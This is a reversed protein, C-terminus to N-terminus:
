AHSDCRGVTRDPNRERERAIGRGQTRCRRPDRIGAPVLDDRGRLLALWGRALSERGGTTRGAGATAAPARRFTRYFHLREGRVPRQEDESMNVGLEQGPWASCTPQAINRLPM